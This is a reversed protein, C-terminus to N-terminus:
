CISSPWIPCGGPWLWFPRAGGEVAITDYGDQELRRRLLSLLDVDDDVLLLTVYDM